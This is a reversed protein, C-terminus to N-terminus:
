CGASPQCPATQVREVNQRDIQRQEAWQARTRCIRQTQLRSGLVSEKKCVMENPDRQERKKNADQAAAGAMPLTLAAVLITLWCIRM